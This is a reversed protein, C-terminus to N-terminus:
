ADSQCHGAAPYARKCLGLSDVRLGSRIDILGEIEGVKGLLVVGIFKTFSRRLM